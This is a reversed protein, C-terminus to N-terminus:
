AYVYCFPGDITSSLEGITMSEALFGMEVVTDLTGNASPPVVSKILVPKKPPALRSPGQRAIPLDRATM